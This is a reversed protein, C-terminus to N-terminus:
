REFEPKEDCYIQWMGRLAAEFNRAFRPADFIPSALVQQRLGSRLDSLRQLDASHSLARILYDDTDTAIWEPLDANMLIGVGQRSLFREKALTLVPVGMWLGEVSTTGGPYPFPDLAIDVRHYAALYKERSEFGELILREADIGYASFRDITNRRVSLEKFQGAKLFLRSGPISELLKAWLAVVDDNMKALNNFCGFTVYGNSFAPLPSVDVEVDPPSFCLRTEPLRWIKETFYAEETEPLTWPDAILYDIAAVGTTAFYGLWSVQVPAPKWAFMPLRNGATHGSLDMLVHVADAHVLQAVAEDSKGSLPKWASFCPKIRATLEDAKHNTPYAILEISSRDLQSLLGELFYGVPHNGFDGSVFGVRLREPQRACSWNTFQLTAKNSVIKGYQRAEKLCCSPTISSTYNLTHLLNSYADVFDPRLELARRYSAEAEDQRGLANLTNGLDSFVEAFDPKIRLAQRYSAEAEDLQGLEQFTIGRNYYAEAFDPRIQLARRYSAEAEDLRGMDKLTLGLNNHAEAFDPRIQLARRYSAEAEDLQGLEKFIIGLNYHPDAFDPRIQLARRYSAEAEDIQGLNQLTTGLNNHADADCPSLAAAKQMPLLADVSRGMKQFVAGLVKWGFGSLPFHVTMTQALSEAEIYRQQNFFSVLTDIEQQGPAGHAVAEAQQQPLQFTSRAELKDYCCKKYKKGSGCPCPDNRGPKMSAM